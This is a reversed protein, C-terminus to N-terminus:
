KEPRKRDYNKTLDQNLVRDVNYKAIQYNKMEDRLGRYEEYLDKKEQVIKSYEASLDKLKPIKGNLDDFARKAARHLLIEDRHEEFFKRSYGANRYQAYVEKTRHYNVIQKRIEAIEKLRADKKKIENTLNRFREGTDNAKKELEEYSGIGMEQLFMLSKAAAKLNFRKGWVEYGRGKGGECIKKELDIMWNLRDQQRDLAGGDQQKEEGIRERIDGDAYGKGCTKLRIYRTQGHGRVSVHKGRKVEYGAEQLMTLFADFSEPRRDNLIEDISERIEDRFPKKQEWTTRKERESPKKKRIVSLGHELCILDSLRQLGLAIFWSDRFKRDCDLNVSDFIIHNHIHAKDIHTAVIFAHNGRTFRMATEYGVKNAEEPTIEGPKFSQRIQYAIIDGANVRGTIRFYEKKALAFERDVTEAACMYTSIYTGNDTKEDNKIYETREKLCQAISNGKNQHMAILRTAAM